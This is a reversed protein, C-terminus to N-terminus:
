DKLTEVIPAVVDYQYGRGLLYRLLKIKWQPDDQLAKYKTLALKQLRADSKSEDIQALADKIISESIGKSRLMYRIKVEGWGALSSKDRAFAEAYRRDDIYKEDKLTSLIEKASEEVDHIYGANNAYVTENAYAADNARSESLLATRLKKLIDASCYERMSCLRRYRDLLSQKVSLDM